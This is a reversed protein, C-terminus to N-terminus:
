SLITVAKRRWVVRGPAPWVGIFYTSEFLAATGLTVVKPIFHCPRCASSPCSGESDTLPARCQDGPKVWSVRVNRSPAPSQPEGVGM